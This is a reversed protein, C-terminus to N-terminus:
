SIDQMEANQIIEAVRLLTVRTIERLLEPPWNLDLNKKYEEPIVSLTLHKVEQEIRERREVAQKEDDNVIPDNVDYALMLTSVQWEFYGLMLNEPDQQQSQNDSM